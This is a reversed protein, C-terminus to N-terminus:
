PFYKKLFQKFDKIEGKVKKTQKLFKNKAADEKSYRITIVNKIESKNEPGTFYNFVNVTHREIDDIFVLHKIKRDQAKGLLYGIAVGKNLGSSLCIGNMFNVERDNIITSPEELNKLFTLEKFSIGEAGLDRETLSRYIPGRSSLVIMSVKRKKLEDLIEPIKEDTLAMKTLQMAKSHFDTFESFDKFDAEKPHTKLLEAQWEYFQDSGLLHLPKLITNDLDSVVVIEEGPFDKQIKEIKELVLDYRDSILSEHAFNAFSIVLLCLVLIKKM